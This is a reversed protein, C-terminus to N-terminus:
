TEGAWCGDEKGIRRVAFRVEGGLGLWGSWHGM